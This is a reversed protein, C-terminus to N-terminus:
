GSDTVRHHESFFSNQFIENFQCSFAQALTRIKIIDIDQLTILFREAVPTKMQIEHFKESSSNQLVSSFPQKQKNLIQM